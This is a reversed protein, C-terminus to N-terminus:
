SDRRVQKARRFFVTINQALANDAVFASYASTETAMTQEFLIKTNNVTVQWDNGNTPLQEHFMLKEAYGTSVFRTKSQM